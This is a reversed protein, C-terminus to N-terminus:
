DLLRILDERRTPDAAAQTPTYGDLSPIKEHIWSREHERIREELFSAIEPDQELDEPDVYNDLMDILGRRQSARVRELGPSRRSFRHATSGVVWTGCRRASIRVTCTRPMRGLVDSGLRSRAAPSREAAIPDGILDVAHAHLWPVTARASKPALSVLATAVATLAPVGGDMGGILQLAAHAQYPDSLHAWTDTDGAVAERIRQIRDDFLVHIADQVLTLFADLAASEADDLLV